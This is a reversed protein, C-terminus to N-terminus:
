LVWGEPFLLPLEVLIGVARGAVAVLISDVPRSLLSSSCHGAGLTVRKCAALERLDAPNKSALAKLNQDNNACGCSM